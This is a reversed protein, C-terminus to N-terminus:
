TETGDFECPLKFGAPGMPGAQRGAPTLDLYTFSQLLGELGRSYDSYTHFVEGDQLKFVSLAPLDGNMDGGRGESALQEKSKYNYEVPAINEDLTAHFDYNFDSGYSSVWPFTWKNKEKFPLIKGIPARSIVVLATDKEALHRLDPFNCVMHSCGKCGEDSEPSFMFHYVILQSKTGFLDKLTVPGDPGEFAYPKTVLVMPLARREEALATRARQHAEEKELLAIRAVRWEEPTVVKATM